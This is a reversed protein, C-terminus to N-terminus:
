SGVGNTSIPKRPSPKRPSPQRSTHSRRTSNGTESTSLYFGRNRNFHIRSLIHRRQACCSV